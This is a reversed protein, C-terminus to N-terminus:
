PRIITLVVKCRALATLAWPQQAPVLISEGAVARHPQDAICIEAEGELIQALISDPLVREVLGEGADFAFLMIRASTGKLIERSVTSGSQYDVLSALSVACAPEFKIETSRNLRQMM